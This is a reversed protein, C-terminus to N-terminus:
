FLPYPLKEILWLGMAKDKYDGDCETCNELLTYETDPFNFPSIQMNIPRWDGTVIDANVSRDIFTTALLYKSGSKHINNIAKKTDVFSLHVFCDRVLVLDRKPLADITIDLVEFKTNVSEYKRINENVIVDVIDAGTYELQQFDIRRIWNYDGCPIDLMSKIGFKDILKPLESILTQTQNIESGPGSISESSGWLNKRNIITFVEKAPMKRLKIKRM